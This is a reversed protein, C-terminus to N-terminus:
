KDWRGPELYNFHVYADPIYTPPNVPVLDSIIQCIREGDAAVTLNFPYSAWIRGQCILQEAGVYGVRMMEPKAELTETGHAREPAVGPPIHHGRKMSVIMADNPVVKDIHEFFGDEYLDDDNLICYHHTFDIDGSNMFRNMAHAWFLWFPKVRPCYGRQIWPQPLHIDFPLGEDFIPHWTLDFQPRRQARLNEIVAELNQLRALPTIVHYHNM